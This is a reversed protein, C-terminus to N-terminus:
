EDEQLLAEEARAMEAAERRTQKKKKKGVKQRSDHGRWRKQIYIAATDESMKGATINLMTDGLGMQKLKVYIRWCRQIRVAAWRPFTHAAFIVTRGKKKPSDVDKLIM